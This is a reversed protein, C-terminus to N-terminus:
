APSGQRSQLTALSKQQRQNAVLKLWPQDVVMYCALPLKKIETYTYFVFVQKLLRAKM